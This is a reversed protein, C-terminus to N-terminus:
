PILVWSVDYVRGLIIQVREVPKAEEVVQELTRESDPAAKAEWRSTKKTEAVLLNSLDEVYKISVDEQRISVVKEDESSRAKAFKRAESHLTPNQGAPGYTIHHKEADAIPGVDMPALWVSGNLITNNRFHDALEGNRFFSPACYFANGTDLSLQHLVNHQETDVPFRFYPGGHEDFFRANRGARFEAFHSVKHQLFISSRFGGARILFEVDYGLAHELRQSPIHPHSALVGAYRNCFAANYCFEYTRESFQPGM